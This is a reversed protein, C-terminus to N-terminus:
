RKARRGSMQTKTRPKIKDTSAPPQRAICRLATPDSAVCSRRAPLALRNQLRIAPTPADREILLYRMWRRASATQERREPRTRIDAPDERTRESPLRM